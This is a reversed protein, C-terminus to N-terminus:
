PTIATNADVDGLTFTMPVADKITISTLLRWSRVPDSLTVYWKGSELPESLKLAGVFTSAGGAQGSRQLLIRQDRGSVAARSLILTMNSLNEPSRQLTLTVRALAQDLTAQASYGAAKAATDRSLDKNVALGQKYYDDVVVGDHTYAALYITYIGAVVVIAPGSMLLWPWPERYWPTLTPSLTKM